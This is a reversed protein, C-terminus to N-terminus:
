FGNRPNALARANIEFVFGNLHAKVWIDPFVDCLQCAIISRITNLIQERHLAGIRHADILNHQGIIVSGSFVVVRVAHYEFWDRFSHKTFEWVLLILQLTVFVFDKVHFFEFSHKGHRGFIFYQATFLASLRFAARLGFETSFFSNRFFILNKRIKFLVNKCRDFGFDIFHRVEPEVVFRNAAFTDSLVLEKIYEDLVLGLFLHFLNTGKMFLPLVKFGFNASLTFGAAYHTKFSKLM